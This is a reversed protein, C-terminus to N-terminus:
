RPASPPGGSQDERKLERDRQFREVHAVSPEILKQIQFFVGPASSGGSRARFSIWGRKECWRLFMILLGFGVAIAALWFLTQITM